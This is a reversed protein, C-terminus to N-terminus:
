PRMWTISVSPIRPWNRPSAASSSGCGSSGSTSSPSSRSIARTSSSFTRASSPRGATPAIAARSSVAKWRISRGTARFFNYFALRKYPVRKRNGGCAFLRRIVTEMHEQTYFAGWADRHAAEWEEDSMGGSHHSVRQNLDYKNMDPDMWVGEKALKAHDESGPLPTLFFFYLIDIPLERKIIEIDHLISERTDNPFGLIYGANIFVPHKKWALLM